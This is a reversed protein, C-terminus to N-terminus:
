PKGFSLRLEALQKERGPGFKLTARDAWGVLACLTGISQQAEEESKGDKLMTGRVLVQRNAKLIGALEPGSLQLHTHSVEAAAQSAQALSDVLDRALQDTSSLIAHGHALALSPRFNFRQDLHNRDLVDQASFRAVTISTGQHNVKDLILGPLAKQGRTFNVLGLAKQWAEEMVEGFAKPDRLGLVLAFAPWQPEPTGIAPDYEQRAVVLRVQPQTQGLVEDTFNRGSFFIGMMNEFFILGSTRQPFMEDKAAYFGALDRYLSLAAIERPVPLAPRAGKGDDPPKAFAAVGGDAPDGGVLLRLVLEQREVYIGLALWPASKLYAPQGALLLTVLPNQNQADFGGMFGPAQRLQELDLFLMGAAGPGVAKKAAAYDSRSALSSSGGNRLDLAAKLVEADSAALLRNEVVAHAEKGNFSWGTVGAYEASRVRGPEGQKDAEAVAIQRVTAHLKDLLAPDDGDLILLSREGAGVALIMGHRTFTRTVGQWNTQAVSELYRIGAVMEQYKGSSTLGSYGPLTALRQALAPALLPDLLQAPQLIELCLMAQSPVLESLPTPNPAADLTTVVVLGALLIRHLRMDLSTATPSSSVAMRAFTVPIAAIKQGTRGFKLDRTAKPPITRRSDM